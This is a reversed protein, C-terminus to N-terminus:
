FLGGLLDPNFRVSAAFGGLMDFYGRLTDYLGSAFFIILLLLALIIPILIELLSRILQMKKMRTVQAELKAVRSQLAALEANGIQTNGTQVAASNPSTRKQSPAFDGFGGTPERYTEQVFDNGAGSVETKKAQLYSSINGNRSPVEKSIVADIWRLSAENVEKAEFTKLQKECFSCIKEEQGNVSFTVFDLEDTKCGCVPCVAM